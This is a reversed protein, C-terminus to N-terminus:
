INVTRELTHIRITHDASGSALKKGDPNWALTAVLKQHGRIEKTQAASFQKRFKQVSIMAIPCFTSFDNRTGDGCRSLLLLM